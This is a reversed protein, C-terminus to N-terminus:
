SYLRLYYKIKLLLVLELLLMPIQISLVNELQTILSVNFLPYM